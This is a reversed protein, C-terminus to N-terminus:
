TIQGYIQRGREHFHENADPDRADAKHAVMTAITGYRDDDGSPAFRRLRPIKTPMSPTLYFDAAATGPRWTRVVALGAYAARTAGVQNQQTIKQVM